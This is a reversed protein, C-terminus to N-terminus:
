EVRRIEGYEERILDKIEMISLLANIENTPMKISRFIEDRHMPESLIKLIEKEEKSIDNREDINIKGKTKNNKNEKNNDNSEENEIEFGLAMLLDDTSTIPTAGQRILNNTGKSNTSNISGPVVLVDRNYDTALRATILTGSKEEAEIILVAKALGAMIRNRQPFAHLATPMDPEFESLLCGGSSVIKEALAINNRPYLVTNNIGSGPVAITPLGARMAETHALSDIGVALGSIIAVPYGRLASILKMVIDRGYNTHKRSGVVALYIYKEPDPIKGRIYLQKPPHPIELLQPPFEKPLIKYVDEM